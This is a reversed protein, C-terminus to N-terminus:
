RSEHEQASSTSSSDPKDADDPYGPAICAPFISNPNKSEAHNGSFSLEVLSDYCHHNLQDLSAETLQSCGVLDLSRIKHQYFFINKYVGVM